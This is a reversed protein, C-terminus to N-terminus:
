KKNSIETANSPEAQKASDGDDTAESEADVASEAKAGDNPADGDDVAEMISQTLGLILQQAQELQNLMLQVALPDADEDPCSEANVAWNEISDCVIRMQQAYHCIKRVNKM